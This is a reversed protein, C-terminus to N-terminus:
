DNDEQCPAIVARRAQSVHEKGVRRHMLEGPTPKKAKLSPPLHAKNKEKEEEM